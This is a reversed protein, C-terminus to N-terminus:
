NVLHLPVIFQLAVFLERRMDTGRVRSGRFIGTLWIVRRSFATHGEHEHLAVGGQHCARSFSSANPRINTYTEIHGTCGAVTGLRIVRWHCGTM